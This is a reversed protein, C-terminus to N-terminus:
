EAKKNFILRRVVEIFLTKDSLYLFIDISTNKKPVVLIVMKKITILWM